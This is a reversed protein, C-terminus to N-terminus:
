PRRREKMERLTDRLVTLIVPMRSPAIDISQERVARGPEQFRVTHRGAETLFYYSALTNPTNPQQPLRRPADGDLEVTTGVPAVVVLPVDVRDRSRIALVFSAAIATLTIAGLIANRNFRREAM